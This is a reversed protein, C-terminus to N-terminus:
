RCHVRLNSGFQLFQAQVTGIGNAITVYVSGSHVGVLVFSPDLVGSIRNSPKLVAFNPQLLKIKNRANTSKGGPCNNRETKHVEM